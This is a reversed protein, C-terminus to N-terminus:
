SQSLVQNVIDDGYIEILRKRSMGREHNFRITETDRWRAFKMARLHTEEEILSLNWQMKTPEVVAQKPMSM